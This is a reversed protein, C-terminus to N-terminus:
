ARLREVSILMALPIRTIRRHLEPDREQALFLSTQTVKVLLGYTDVPWPEPMDENEDHVEYADDWHAVVVDGISVLKQLEEQTM